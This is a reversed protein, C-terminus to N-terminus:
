GWCAASCRACGLPRRRQLPFPPTPIPLPPCPRREKRTAIAGLIQELPGRTSFPRCSTLTEYLLVGFAYLDAAPQAELRADQPSDKSLLSALFLIAEPPQCYLTGPALGETLVPAWPLHAAGFDILFPADDEQRVLLNDAKVDRHCIGREHLAELSKLLACLVGVSRYLPAREHWRWVHFSSGSVYPMVFYGYGTEPDPWRGRELVPLLHPHELHELSIVERRMWADVKDLDKASAARAAMKMVYRQGGRKVLFVFAFGGVGLRRVIRFDRVHHGARLQDPRRPRM